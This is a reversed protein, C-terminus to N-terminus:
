SLYTSPLTLCHTELAAPRAYQNTLSNVSSLEGVVYCREVLEVMAQSKEVFCLGLCLGVLIM